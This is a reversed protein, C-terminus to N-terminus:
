SFDWGIIYLGVNNDISFMNITQQDGTIDSLYRLTGFRGSGFMLGDNVPTTGALYLTPSGTVMGGEGSVFLDSQSSESPLGAIYLPFDKEFEGGSIFLNCGGTPGREVYLNLDGDWNLYGPIGDVAISLPIFDWEPEKAELYLLLSNTTPPNGGRVYLNFPSSLSGSDYGSISLNLPEYAYKLGLVSLPAYGQGINGALTSLPASGLITTPNGGSIFLNFPKFTGPPGQVFLNTSKNLDNAATTYLNTSKNISIWNAADGRIFLNTEGSSEPYTTSPISLNASSNIDQYGAAFLQMNSLWTSYPVGQIFLSFIAPGAYEGAGFLLRTSVLSSVGTFAPGTETSDSAVSRSLQFASISTKAYLAQIESNSFVGSYIAPKSISINSDGIKGITIPITLAPNNTNNQLNHGDIWFSVTSVSKNVIVIINHFVNVSLPSTTSISTNSDVYKIFGNVVILGATSTGLITHTGTWDSSKIWVSFSTSDNLPIGSINIPGGLSLYDLSNEVGTSVSGSPNGMNSHGSVDVFNNSGVVGNYLCVLRSSRGSFTPSFVGSGSMTKSTLLEGSGFPIKQGSGDLTRNVVLSGSGSPNLVTEDYNFTLSLNDLLFAWSPLGQDYSPDNNFEIKFAIDFDTASALSGSIAGTTGGSFNEWTDLSTSSIVTGFDVGSTDGSAMFTLGSLQTSYEESNLLDNQTLKYDVGNLSISTLTADSPIGLDARSFTNHFRGSNIDPPNTQGFYGQQISLQYAGGPNGTSSQWTSSTNFSPMDIISWGSDSDFTLTVTHTM